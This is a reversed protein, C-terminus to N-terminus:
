GEVSSILLNVLGCVDQMEPVAVRQSLSGPPRREDDRAHAAAFGAGRGVDVTPALTM